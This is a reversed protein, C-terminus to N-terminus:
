YDAWVRVIGHKEVAEIIEEVAPRLTEDAAAIRRLYDYDEGDFIMDSSGSLVISVFRSPAPADLSRGKVAQWYLSAGM